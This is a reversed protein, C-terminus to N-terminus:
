ATGGRRTPTALAHLLERLLSKAAVLVTELSYRWDAPDLDYFALPPRYSALLGRWTLLGARLYRPAATADARLVVHRFARQAPAVPAPPAGVLAQYDLWALEVGAYPAADGSGSLRPNAEILKVQGDRADRKVEIECIGVYGLRRLWGDCLAAVEEDEVPETVSAPGFGVPDCRLERLVAHGTRAGDEGYCSLYVRKAADDGEIIEQVIVRPTVPAAQAYLAELAEPSAAMAIKQRALPHGPAFAHWERFHIPKLLCPYRAAAAFAAVEAASAALQTRPLPMGHAEALAYQTDKNALQGQLAVGPSLRYHPRLAEAHRAIASVFQDASCLLAPRSGEAGGLEAALAVMFAVWGDPDTDPNPCLRAPGHASTFGPMAPDCDFCVARVGHRRLARVGLVGTQYAGAIV